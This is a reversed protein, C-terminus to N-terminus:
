IYDNIMQEGIIIGNDKLDTIKHLFDYIEESYICNPRRFSNSGYSAFEKWKKMDIVYENYAFLKGDIIGDRCLIVFIADAHTNISWGFNGHSIVEFPLNGTEFARTDVKVEIKKFSTDRVCEWDNTLPKGGKSLVFDVDIKQWFPIDSVDYVTYGQESLMKGHFSLFFREGIKGYTLVDRGFDQARNAALVSM